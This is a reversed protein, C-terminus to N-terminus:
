KIKIWEKFKIEYRDTFKIKGENYLYVLKEHSICTIDTIKYILNNKNCFLEASKRKRMVLDSDWLKKPKIEVIYKDEIIFDPFYNKNIGKYNKYQIKYKNTEATEWKLNFREIVEVM